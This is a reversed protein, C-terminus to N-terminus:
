LVTFSGQVCESEVTRKDGTGGQQWGSEVWAQARVVAENIGYKCAAWRMILDTSDSYQGDV